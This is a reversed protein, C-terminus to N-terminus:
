RQAQVNDLNRRTTRFQELAVEMAALSELTRPLKMSELMARENEMLRVRTAAVAALHSASNGGFIAAHNALKPSNLARDLEGTKVKKSERAIQKEVKGIAKDLERIRNSSIQVTPLTIVPGVTPIATPPPPAALETAHLLPACGLLLLALLFRSLNACNVAALQPFRM